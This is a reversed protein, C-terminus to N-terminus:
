EEELKERESYLRMWRYTDSLYYQIEENLPHLTYAKRLEALSDDWRNRRRDLLGLIWLLQADNPLTRRAISLEEYAREREAANSQYIILWRWTRSGM